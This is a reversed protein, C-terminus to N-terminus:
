NLGNPTPVRLWLFLIPAVNLLNRLPNAIGFVLSKFGSRPFPNTIQNIFGAPNPDPNPDRQASAILIRNSVRECHSDLDYVAINCLSLM